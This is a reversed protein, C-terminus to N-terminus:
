PAQDVPGSMSETIQDSVREATVAISRRAELSARHEGQFAKATAVSMLLMVLNFPLATLIAATQISTLGNHGVLLLAIAVLASLVAWFERIRNKPAADGGTSIMSM